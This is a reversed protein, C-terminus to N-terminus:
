SLADRHSTVIKFELTITESDDSNKCVAENFNGFDVFKGYWLIPGTTTEQVSQRLLPFLRILSSKGSSNRGLYVTIPKLESYTYKQFSRLNKVGLGKLM